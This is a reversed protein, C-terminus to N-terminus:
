TSATCAAEPPQRCVGVAGAPGRRSGVRGAAPAHLGFGTACNQDSLAGAARECRKGASVGSAFNAHEYCERFRRASQLMKRDELLSVVTERLCQPTHSAAYSSWRTEKERASKHPRTCALRVVVGARVVLLQQRELARAASLCSFFGPLGRLLFLAEPSAM